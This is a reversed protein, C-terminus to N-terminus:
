SSTPSFDDPVITPDGSARLLIRYSKGKEVKMFPAGGHAARIGLQRARDPDNAIAWFDAWIKKEFDTMKGGGAYVRPALGTEDLPFGDDPRQGSGFIRKFLLLSTGRELDAQEVYKDDFKVVWGDIYVIDGRIHFRRPTDISEGADNLEVFEIVSVTEGLAEDKFQDVTTFRAVRHDIKLYHIALELKKVSANLRAIENDKARLEATKKAVDAQVELLRNKATALERNRADLLQASRRADTEKAHYGTYAYFGAAGFGGLFAIVLLTRLFSNVTSVGEMFKSM